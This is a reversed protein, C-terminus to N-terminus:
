RSLKADMTITANLLKSVPCGEKAQTAFELFRNGDTGPVTASVTPHSSKIEFGEGVQEIAVAAETEIREPTLGADGLIKALAMSFRGAHAAGILEEPNAGKGNEFRSSFGYQAENLVGSQTTVTGKGDRIKGTWGAKGKRIMMSERQHNVM